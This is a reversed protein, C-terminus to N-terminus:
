DLSKPPTVLSLSRSYFFIVFFFDSDAGSCVNIEDGFLALCVPFRNHWWVHFFFFLSASERANQLVGIAHFAIRTAPKRPGSIRLLFFAGSWPPQDPPCCPYLTGPHDGETCSCNHDSCLFAFYPVSKPLPFFVPPSPCRAHFHYCLISRVCFLAFFFCGAVGVPASGFILSARAYERLTRNPSPCHLTHVPSRSLEVSGLHVRFQHTRRGDRPVVLFGFFVASAFWVSFSGFGSNLTLANAM